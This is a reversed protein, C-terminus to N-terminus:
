SSARAPPSAPNAEPTGIALEAVVGFELWDDRAHPEVLRRVRSAFEEARDAGVREWALGARSKWSLVYDDVSQRWPEPGVWGREDARFLGRTEIEDILDYPEFDQMASYARILPMLESRWPTEEFRCTPIVALRGGPALWRAFRPLVVEWTMWHLSQPTLILDFKEDTEFAEASSEIWTM